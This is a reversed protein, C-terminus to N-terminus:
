HTNKRSAAEEALAGQQGTTVAKTTRHGSQDYQLQAPEYTSRVASAHTM